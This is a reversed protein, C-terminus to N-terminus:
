KLFHFALSMINGKDILEEIIRVLDAFKEDSSTAWKYVYYYRGPCNEFYVYLLDGKLTLGLLLSDFYEDYDEGIGFSGEGIFELDGIDDDLIKQFKNIFKGM